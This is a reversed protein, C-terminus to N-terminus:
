TRRRLEQHRHRDIYGGTLETRRDGTFSVMKLEMHRYISISEKNNIESWRCAALFCSLHVDSSVVDPRISYLSPRICKIHKAHTCNIRSIQPLCINHQITAVDLHHHRGFPQERSPMHPFSTRQQLTRTNAVHIYSAECHQIFVQHDEIWKEPQGMSKSRQVLVNSLRDTQLSLNSHLAPLLRM